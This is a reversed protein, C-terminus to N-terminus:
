WMPVVCVWSSFTDSFHSTVCLGCLSVGCTLSHLVLFQLGLANGVLCAVVAVAGGSGPQLGEPFVLAVGQTDQPRADHSVRVLGGPVVVFAAGVRTADQPVVRATEPVHRM